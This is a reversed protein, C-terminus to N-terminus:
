QMMEEETLQSAAIERYVECDKLLDSHKGIGVVVGENLVVIKDADMITGIRQAVILTTVGETEKKLASRLIRDTRYDLASFSDDFIYIEPKRCVARAISLRQKQGGSLNVGGEAVSGHYQGDAKEVFDTGQAIAIAKKVDEETRSAETDGYNVNSSIDGKFMVAKQPVYGIKKYLAELTYDKVNVGDIELSGETVDYFRPVLSILTSKGSGTSGIFAVVEGKKVDFSVDKLIYDSAGPYKFSVNNFSIEGVRGEPSETVTGDKISAETSIVEEIRKAAVMARPLIMFVIILMIFAGLIMMAYSSFVIMDSFEVFKQMGDAANIIFAGLWYIALALLSIILTMSPMLFALARTVSLHTGTLNANAAKFKDEQYDEANYAHVVRIGSLGEKTVRNVDDTLWQIRKFKPIVYWMIALLSLALVVIAVATASTWVMNKTSIKFLAWVVMIPAKILVVMGMTLAMQVQTVDNTSRTILSYISFKNIEQTSYSEVQRFQRERLTKALQTGIYAAIASEIVTVILSGVACAMMWGGEALVQDVTGGATMIMTITSMYGPIELELYVQIFALVALVALLVWDIKRLYKLIM